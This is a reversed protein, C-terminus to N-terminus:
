EEFSVDGKVTRVFFYFACPIFVFWVTCEGDCAYPLFYCAIICVICLVFSKLRIVIEERKQKREAKIIRRAESLTYVEESSIRRTYM